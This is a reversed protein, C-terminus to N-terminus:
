LSPSYSGKIYLSSLTLGAITKSDEIEGRAVMTLAEELPMTVIQLFEDEEPAAVGEELERVLYLHLVEDSFGPSTYFVSLKLWEGASLGTEEMLERRGCELPDEGRDLKGAPIELLERATPHRYQRVLYVTEWEDIAVMAVAGGHRVVEREAEKGNPLIIRDLYLRVVKGEFVTKRDILERGSGSM